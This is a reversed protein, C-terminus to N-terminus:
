SGERAHHFLTALRQSQCFKLRLYYILQIWRTFSPTFYRTSKEGEETFRAKTRIKLADLEQRDYDKLKEKSELYKTIADTNGTAM